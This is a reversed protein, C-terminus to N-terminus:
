KKVSGFVSTTARLLTEVVGHTYSSKNYEHVSGSLAHDSRYVVSAIGFAGRRKNHDIGSM